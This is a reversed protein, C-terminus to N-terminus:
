PKNGSPPLKQKLWVLALVTASLYGNVILVWRLPYTAAFARLAGMSDHRMEHMPMSPIADGTLASALSVAGDFIPAGRAHCEVCGRAGLAQQAGRVDHALAWAYQAAAP